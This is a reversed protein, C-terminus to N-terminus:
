SPEVKSSIRSNVTLARKLCKRCLSIFSLTGPVFIVPEDSNSWNYSAIFNVDKIDIPCTPKQIESLEFKNLLEGANKIM